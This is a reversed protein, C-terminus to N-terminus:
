RRVEAKKIASLEDESDTLVTGRKLTLHGLDM